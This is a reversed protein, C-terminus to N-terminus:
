GQCMSIFRRRWPRIAPFTKMTSLIKSLGHAIEFNNLLKFKTNGRKEIYNGAGISLLRIQNVKLKLAKKTDTKM